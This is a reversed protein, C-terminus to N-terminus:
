RNGDAAADGWSMVDDIAHHHLVAIWTERGFQMLAYRADWFCEAIGFRESRCLIKTGDRPATDIPKWEQAAAPTVILFTVLALYRLM